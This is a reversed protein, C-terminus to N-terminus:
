SRNRGRSVGTIQSVRGATVDLAGAIDRVSWGAQQLQQAADVMATQAARVAAEASQRQAAVEFAHKALDDDARPDLQFTVHVDADDALDDALIIADVLEARLKGLTKAYAHAGPLGPVEALWYGDERNVIAQYSVEEVM